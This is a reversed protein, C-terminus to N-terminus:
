NDNFLVGFCPVHVIANKKGKSSIVNSSKEDLLNLTKPYYPIFCSWILEISILSNYLKSYSENM